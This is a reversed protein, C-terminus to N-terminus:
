VLLHLLAFSPPIGYLIFEPLDGSQYVVDPRCSDYGLLSRNEAHNVCLRSLRVGHM